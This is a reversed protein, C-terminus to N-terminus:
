TFKLVWYVLGATSLFVPIGTLEYTAIKQAVVDDKVRQPDWILPAQSQPPM